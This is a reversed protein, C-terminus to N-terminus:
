GKACAPYQEGIQCLNYVELTVDEEFVGDVTNILLEYETTCSKPAKPKKPKDSGSKSPAKTPASSPKSTDVKKSDPKKTDVRGTGTNAPKSSGRGGSSGASKGEFGVLGMSLTECKEIQKDDVPGQLNEPRKADGDSCAGLLVIGAVVTASVPILYKKM